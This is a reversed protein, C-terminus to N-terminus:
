LATEEGTHDKASRVHLQPPPKFVQSYDQKLHGEKRCYYCTWGKEGPDRQTTKRAFEFCIQFDNNLSWDKRTKKHSKEEKERGYYVTQAM